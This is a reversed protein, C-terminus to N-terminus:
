GISAANCTLVWIQVARWNSYIKHAAAVFAAYVGIGPVAASWGGNGVDESVFLCCPPAKFCGCMSWWSIQRRCNIHWTRLDLVAVIRLRCNIMLALGALVLGADLNANKHKPMKLIAVFALISSGALNRLQLLCCARTQVIASRSSLTADTVLCYQQALPGLLEVGASFRAAFTEVHPDVSAAPALILLGSIIDSGLSGDLGLCDLGVMLMDSQIWHVAEHVMVCLLSTAGCGAFGQVCAAVGVAYRMLAGGEILLLVACVAESVMPLSPLGDAIRILAKVVSSDCPFPLLMLLAFGTAM